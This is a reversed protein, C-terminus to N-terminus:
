NKETNWLFNRVLPHVHRCEGDTKTVQNATEDGQERIEEDCLGELSEDVRANQGSGYQQDKTHDLSSYRTGSGGFSPDARVYPTSQAGQHDSSGGSTRCVSNDSGKFSLM